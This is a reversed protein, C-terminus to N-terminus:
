DTNKQTEGNIKQMLISRDQRLMKVEYKGTIREPMQVVTCELFDSALMELQV